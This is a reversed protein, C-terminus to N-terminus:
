ACRRRGTAIFRVAGYPGWIWGLVELIGGVELKPEKPEASYPSSKAICAGYEAKLAPTAFVPAPTAALQGLEGALGLRAAATQLHERTAGPRGEIIHPHASPTTRTVAADCGAPPAADAASVPSWTPLPARECVRYRAMGPAAPEEPSDIIRFGIPPPPTSTVQQCRQYSKWVDLNSSYIWLITGVVIASLM